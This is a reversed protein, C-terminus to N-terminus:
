TMAFKNRFWQTFDIVFQIAEKGYTGGDSVWFPSVEETKAAMLWSALHLAGNKISWNKGLTIMM